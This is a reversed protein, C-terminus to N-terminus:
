GLKDFLLYLFGGWGIVFLVLYFMHSYFGSGLSTNKLDNDNENPKELYEKFYDNELIYNEIDSATKLFNDELIYLLDYKQCVEDLNLFDKKLDQKLIQIQRKINEDVRDLNLAIIEYNFCKLNLYYNIKEDLLEVLIEVNKGSLIISKIFEIFEKCRKIEEDQKLLIDEFSRM